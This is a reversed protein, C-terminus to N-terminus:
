VSNEILHNFDHYKGTELIKYFLLIRNYGFPNPRNVGGDTERKKNRSNSAQALVAEGFL